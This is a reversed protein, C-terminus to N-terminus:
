AGFVGETADMGETALDPTRRPRRDGMERAPQAVSGASLMPRTRSRSVTRVGFKLAAVFMGGLTLLLGVAGVVVPQEAFREGISLRRDVALRSERVRREFRPIDSVVSQRYEIIAPGHRTLGRGENLYQVLRQRGRHEAKAM